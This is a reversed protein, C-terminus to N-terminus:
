SKGLKKKLRGSNIYFWAGFLLLLHLYIAIYTFIIHKEDIAKLIYVLFYSIGYIFLVSLSAWIGAGYVAFILSFTDKKAALERLTKMPHLYSVLGLLILPVSAACAVAGKKWIDYPDIDPLAGLLLALVGPAIFVVALTGWMAIKRLQSEDAQIFDRIPM